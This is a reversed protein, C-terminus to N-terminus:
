FLGSERKVFDVIQGTTFKEFFKQSPHLGDCKPDNEWSFLGDEYMDLVPLGYKECVDEVANAVDKLTYGAGNQGPYSLFRFPTMFFIFADPCREKLGRALHDLGGYVTDPTSDGFAGLPVNSGFDNVGIMVSVMDADSPVVFLQNVTNNGSGYSVTAGNVALNLHRKLHLADSVQCPYPRDMRLGTNGDYGYTISDGLAVYYVDSSEPPEYTSEMVLSTGLACGVLALSVLLVSARNMRDGIGTDGHNFM